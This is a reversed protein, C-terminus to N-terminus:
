SKTKCKGACHKLSLHIDLVPQIRISSLKTPKEKFELSCGLTTGFPPGPTKK